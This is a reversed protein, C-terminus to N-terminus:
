YKLSLPAFPRSGSQSDLIFWHKARYIPTLLLIFYFTHASHVITMHPFIFVGRFFVGVIYFFLFGWLWLEAGYIPALLFIVGLTHALHVVFPDPLVSIRVKSQLRAVLFVGCICRHVLSNNPFSTLCLLIRAEYAYIMGSHIPSEYFFRCRLFVKNSLTYPSGVM